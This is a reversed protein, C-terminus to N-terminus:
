LVLDGLDEFRNNGGNNPKGSNSGGEGDPREISGLKRAGSDYEECAHNYIATTILNRVQESYGLAMKVSVDAPSLVAKTVGDRFIHWQSPKFPFVLKPFNEAVVTIYVVGDKTKGLILSGKIKKESTPKNEVYVPALSDNIIQADAPGNAVDNLYLMMATMNAVDAAFIIMGERGQVGTNVTIRPRGDRFGFALRPSKGDDSNKEGWMVLLPADFFTKLLHSM